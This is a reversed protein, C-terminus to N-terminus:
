KRERERERELFAVSVSMARVRAAKMRAETVRERVVFTIKDKKWLDIQEIM